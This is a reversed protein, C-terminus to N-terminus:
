NAKAEYKEILTQAKQYLRTGDKGEKDMDAIWQDTVPQMAQRWRAVEADPLANFITGSDVMTQRNRVDADDWVQGIWGATEIGSNHDIVKKLDDPLKNYSDKNMAFVFFQTYLGPKTLIETSYRTLEHIKLPTVAEYALLASDVVGKSLSSPLTPLPLFIPSAGALKLAEAMQKNPARVKVGKMDELRTVPKDRMLIAGAHHTHLALLHVESLEDQMEQEAFEQLAMSSSRGSTAMFPLEFVGAKPFRGPTYGGVTWVIDVVGQRAQDFLQSPNGGLQMSPYIDIKIRGNSEKMVKQAWPELFRSHANSMPPSMHHLKLTVEPEAALASSAVGLSLTFTVAKFLASLRPALGTIKETKM